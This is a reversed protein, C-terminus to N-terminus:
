EKIFKLPPYPSPLPVQQMNFFFFFLIGHLNSLQIWQGFTMNAMIINNIDKWKDLIMSGLNECLHPMDPQFTLAVDSCICM